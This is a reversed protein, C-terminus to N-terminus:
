PMRSPPVPWDKPEPLPLKFEITLWLSRKKPQTGPTTIVYEVVWKNGSVTLSGTNVNPSRVLRLLAWPGPITETQLPKGDPTSRFALTIDGGSYEVSANENTAENLSFDKLVKGGQSAVMYAYDISIANNKDDRLKEKNVTVTAVLPKNDQPLAMLMRDLKEFYDRKDGILDTGRLRTLEKDIDENNILGGQGIPLTGLSGASPTGPATSVSAVAAAGRIKELGNRAALIDSLPLDNKPDTTMISLPFKEYKALEEMGAKIQNQGDAVLGKLAAVPLRNWYLGAYSENGKASLVTYGEKFDNAVKGLIARRVLASDTGFNAWNNLVDKSNPHSITAATKSTEDTAGVVALAKDIADGYAKLKESIIAETTDGLKGSLDKFQKYNFAIEDKTTDRWYHVYADKYDKLSKDCDDARSKLTSVDLIKAAKDEATQGQIAKLRTM